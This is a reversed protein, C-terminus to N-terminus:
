IEPTTVGIKTIAEYKSASVQMIQQSTIVSPSCLKYIVWSHVHILMGCFDGGVWLMTTTYYAHVMIILKAHAARAPASSSPSNGPLIGPINVFPSFFPPIIKGHSQSYFLRETWNLNDSYYSVGCGGSEGSMFLRCGAPSNIADLHTYYM